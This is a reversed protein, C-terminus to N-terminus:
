GFLPIGIREDRIWGLRVMLTERRKIPNNKKKKYTM